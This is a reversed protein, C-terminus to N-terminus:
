VILDMMRNALYRNGTKGKQSTAFLKKLKSKSIDDAVEGLGDDSLQNRGTPIIYYEDYGASTVAAFGETRVQKRARQHKARNVSVWGLYKELVSKNVNRGAVLFIGITNVGYKDKMLKLLFQVQKEAWDGYFRYMPKTSKSINYTKRTAPDQYMCDTRRHPIMSTPRTDEITKYDNVYEGFSTNAEGDTLCIFNVKDLKHANRFKPLIDQMAVMAEVLPTSGLGYAGFEERAYYNKHGQGYFWLNFLSTTLQRANERSSTLNLLRMNSDGLWVDGHVHKWGLKMKQQVKEMAAKVNYDPDDEDTTIPYSYNNSFAYVEFPINVKSCFWILNMLQHITDNMIHTMSASWDILMVLGHNKGDHVIARKLFLDDNYKYSHLANVNLVGTKNISTRKYEQAAKKREFEKVMYNVIKVSKTRFKKYEVKATAEDLPLEGSYDYLSGRGHTERYELIEKRRVTNRRYCIEIQESLEKNVDKWDIILNNLNPKPLGIYIRDYATRDLMENIRAEYEAQTNVEDGDVYHEDPDYGKGADEPTMPGVRLDEDDPDEDSQHGPMGPVRMEQPEPEESNENWFKMIEKTVRVADDFTEVKEILRVLYMEESGFRVGLSSGGKFHINLRDLINMSDWDKAVEGFFGQDFLERYGTVFCSRLGPYKRQVKREIRPDEVINLINQNVPDDGTIAVEWEDTPTYLAHGVEHGVMMDTLAKSMRKFIPLTLVRSKIDFSATQATADHRVFINETALLKALQNTTNVLITISRFFQSAIKELSDSKLGWKRKLYSGTFAVHQYTCM